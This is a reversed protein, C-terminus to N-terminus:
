GRGNDAVMLVVSQSAGEEDGSQNVQVAVNPAFDGMAKMLMEMARFNPEETGMQAVEYGMGVGLQVVKEEVHTRHVQLCLWALRDARNLFRLAPHEADLQTQALEERMEAAKILARRTQEAAFARRRVLVKEREELKVKLPTGDSKAERSITHAGKPKSKEKRPRGPSKVQRPPPRSGSM